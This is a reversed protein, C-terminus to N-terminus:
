FTGCMQKGFRFLINISSMLCVMGSHPLLPWSCHTALHGNALPTDFLATVSFGWSAINSLTTSSIVERSPLFPCTSRLILSIPYFFSWGRTFSLLYGIDGYGM